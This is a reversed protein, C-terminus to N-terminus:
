AAGDFGEKECDRCPDDAEQILVGLDAMSHIAGSALVSEKCRACTVRAFVSVPHKADVFSFEIGDFMIAPDDDNDAPDSWWADAPIERGTIARVAAALLGHMTLVPCAAALAQERLSTAAM